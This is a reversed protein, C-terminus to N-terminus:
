SAIGGVGRPGCAARCRRNLFHSLGAVIGGAVMLGTGPRGSGIDEVLRGLVPLVVGAGLAAPVRCSRHARYGLGAGVVGLVVSVGILGGELAEGVPGEGLFPLSTAVIPALACHIPCGISVWGGALGLRGALRGRRAEPALLPSSISASM